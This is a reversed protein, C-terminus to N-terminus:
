NLGYQSCTEKLDALATALNKGRTVVDEESVNAKKRTQNMKDKLSHSLDSVIDSRQEYMRSTKTERSQSIGEDLGYEMQIATALHKLANMAEDKTLTESLKPGENIDTKRNDPMHFDLSDSPIDINTGYKPLELQEKDLKTIDELGYEKQIAGSLRELTDARESVLNGMRQVVGEDLACFTGGVRDLVNWLEWKKQVDELPTKDNTGTITDLNYIVANRISYDGMYGKPLVGDEEFDKGLFGNPTMICVYPTYGKGEKEVARSAVIGPEIVMASEEADYPGFSSEDRHWEMWSEMGDQYLNQEIADLIPKSVNIGVLNNSKEYARSRESDAQFLSAYRIDQVSDEGHKHNIYSGTMPNLWLRVKNEMIIDPEGGTVKVIKQLQNESMNGYIWREAM